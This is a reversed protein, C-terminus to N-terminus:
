EHSELRGEQKGAARAADGIYVSCRRPGDLIADNSVTVSYGTPTGTCKVIHGPTLTLLGLRDLTAADTAYDGWKQRYAEQATMFNRIDRKVAALTGEDGFSM